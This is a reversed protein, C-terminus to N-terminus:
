APRRPRPPTLHGVVQRDALDEREQLLLEGVDGDGLDAEQLALAQDVRLPGRRAVPLEVLGVDISEPPDEDLLALVEQGELGDAGDQLLPIKCTPWLAAYAARADPDGLNVMEATFPAGNHFVVGPRLKIEWTLPDLTKWSLALNPKLQLKEDLTILHEYILPHSSGTPFAAFFHPDLTNLELKTGLTLTTPTQAVVPPLALGTAALALLVTLCRRTRDPMLATESPPGAPGPPTQIMTFSPGTAARADPLPASLGRGRMWWAASGALGVIVVATVAWGRKNM